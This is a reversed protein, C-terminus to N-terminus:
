QQVAKNLFEILLEKCYKRPDESLPIKEMFDWLKRYGLMEEAPESLGKFHFLKRNMGSKALHYIIFIYDMDDENELCFEAYERFVQLNYDIIFRRFLQAQKLRYPDFIYKELPFAMDNCFVDHNTSPLIKELEDEEYEFDEGNLKKALIEFMGAFASYGPEFAEYCVGEIGMRLYIELDKLYTPAAHQFTGLLSQKMANEHIYVGGPFERNWDELRRLLYENPTRADALPTDAMYKLNCAHLRDGGSGLPYYTHRLFTDFMIRDSKRYAAGERTLNYRMNYVDGEVKLDPRLERALDVFIGFFPYWQEAAPIHRCKECRCYMYGDAARLHIRKVEPPLEELWQKLGAEFAEKVEPVAGCPHTECELSTLYPKGNEDKAFWDAKWDSGSLISRIGFTMLTIEIGAARCEDLILNRYRKWGYDYHVILTNLGLEKMRFIFRRLQDPTHRLISECLNFGRVAFKKM